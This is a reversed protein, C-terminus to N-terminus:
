QLFLCFETNLVHNIKFFFLKRKETRKIEPDNAKEVNKKLNIRTFQYTKSFVSEENMTPRIAEKGMRMLGNAAGIPPFIASLYGLFSTSKKALNKV